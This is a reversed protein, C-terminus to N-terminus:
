LQCSLDTSCGNYFFTQPTQTTLQSRDQESFQESSDQKRQSKPANQYKIKMRLREEDKKKKKRSHM